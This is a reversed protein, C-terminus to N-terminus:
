KFDNKLAALIERILKFFEKTANTAGVLVKSLTGDVETGGKQLQDIYSGITAGLYTSLLALIGGILPVASLFLGFIAGVLTGLAMNPNECIFDWLKACVIRGIYVLKGGIIQTTEFLTDMKRRFEAATSANLNLGNIIKEVLGEDNKLTKITFSADDFKMLETLAVAQTM